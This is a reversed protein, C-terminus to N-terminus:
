QGTVLKLTESLNGLQAIASPPILERSIMDASERARTLTEQGVDTLVAYGVRADRPDRERKVLGIKELPILTRTVASPTLGLQQALDVRRLRGDAAASLHLLVVFDGFSLGHWMGLRGDFRRSVAANAKTLRVCFDLPSSVAGSKTASKM